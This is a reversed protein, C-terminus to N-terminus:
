WQKCVLSKRKANEGIGHGLAGFRGDKTYYTITGIGALDDKVWIGMYYRGDDMRVPTIDASMKEGGRLFKINVTSKDENSEDEHREDYEKMIDNWLLNRRQRCCNNMSDSAPYLGCVASKIQLISKKAM